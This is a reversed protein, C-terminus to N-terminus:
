RLPPIEVPIVNLRYYLDERFSKEKVLEILKRNTATIIRVDIQAPANDGIRRIEGMEIARLLKSQMSLPLEGVEDLFLTGHHAMEFIGAKGRPDAGTFAYRAHAFFEAEVLEPSIAACNVPILPMDARTSNLHIFYALVEKGTGSEGYIHVTSDSHAAIKAIDYLKQMQANKTKIFVTQEKAKSLFRVANQLNQKDEKIEKLFLDFFSEELSFSVAMTIKGDADMVPASYTMM